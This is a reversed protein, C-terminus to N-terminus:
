SNPLNERMIEEIERIALTRSFESDYLENWMELFIDIMDKGPDSVIMECWTLREANQVQHLQVVIIREDIIIFEYPFRLRTVKLTAKARRSERLDCITVCHRLFAEDDVGDLGRSVDEVQSVRKYTLGKSVQHNIAEFHGRMITRKVTVDPRQGSASAIDVILIERRAAAIAQVVLDDAAASRLNLDSVAQCKVQVGVQQELSRLGDLVRERESSARDAIAKEIQDADRSITLLAIIVAILVISIAIAIAVLLRFSTNTYEHMATGLLAGVTASAVGAAVRRVVARGHAGSVRFASTDLASLDSLRTSAETPGRGDAVVPPAEGRGRRDITVETESDEM